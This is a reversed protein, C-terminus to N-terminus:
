ANTASQIQEMYSNIVINRDFEKEVKFRGARGMQAMQDADLSMFCEIASVLSEVNQAECGYGTIGEDFTERCGPVNTTIVPRGTSAAELMVNAMGEHYSPLVVCHANKIFPHVDAQLGHFRIYGSKEAEWIVAEYDEDFEGVIDLSVDNGKQKIIKIADLLEQIGKDKMIRGIFLFRIEKNVPPFEEFPHDNLNVGSGPIIQTKGKVIGNEKFYEHNAKNQFFVCYAKSLGVKYLFLSLKSTVGGNEITTGLGTVNSIYPIKQAKCVMGGYVNPKITYTLVVNPHEAKVIHKYQMLLALEHLPNMGRREMECNVIRAGLESLKTGYEGPPVCIVVEYEDCLSAILERRFKYLGMDYNTLILVRKKM